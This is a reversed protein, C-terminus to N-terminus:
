CWNMCEAPKLLSIPGVQYGASCCTISIAAAM